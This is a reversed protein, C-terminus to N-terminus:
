KAEDKVLSALYLKASEELETGLLAAFEKRAEAKLEAKACLIGLSLRDQPATLGGEACDGRTWRSRRRPDHVM